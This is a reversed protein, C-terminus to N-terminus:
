SGHRSVSLGLCSISRLWSTSVLSMMQTTLIMQIPLTVGSGGGNLSPIESYGIKLIKGIQLDYWNNRVMGYRGLYNADRSAGAPYIADVDGEAPKTGTGYEDTNWPTM